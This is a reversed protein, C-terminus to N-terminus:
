GVTLLYQVQQLNTGMGDDVTFTFNYTGSASPAGGVLVGQNNPTATLFLGPGVGSGSQIVTGASDTIEFLEGSITYPSMGGVVVPQAPIPQDRNADQLKVPQNGPAALPPFINIIGQENGHGAIQCGYTPQPFCQSSPASPAPGLHNSAITPWHAEQPDLNLFFVNETTDVAVTEFEVIGGTSRAIRIRKM